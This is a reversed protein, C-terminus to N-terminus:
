KQTASTKTGKLASKVFDSEEESFGDKDYIVRGTNNDMYNDNPNGKNDLMFNAYYFSKIGSSTLQGSTVLALYATDGTENVNIVKAFVTFYNNSGSIYGGIGTGTASGNIYDLEVTSNATNQHSYQVEFDAFVYGPQYYDYPNTTSVEVFPSVHYANTLTPPTTGGYVPMGQKIIANYTSDPIISRINANLDTYKANQETTSSDKKSCSISISLVAMLAFLVFLSKRKM